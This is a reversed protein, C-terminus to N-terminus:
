RCFEFTLSFITFCDISNQMCKTFIFVLLPSVEHGSALLAQLPEVCDQGIVVLNPRKENMLSKAGRKQRSLEELQKHLFPSVGSQLCINMCIIYLKIIRYKLLCILYFLSLIHVKHPNSNKKTNKKMLFACFGPTYTFILFCIAEWIQVTSIEM